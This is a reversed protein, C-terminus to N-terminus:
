QEQMVYGKTRENVPFCCLKTKDWTLFADTSKIHTAVNSVAMVAQTVLELLMIIQLWSHPTDVAKDTFLGNSKPADRDTLWKVAPSNASGTREREGGGM